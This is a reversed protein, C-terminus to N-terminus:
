EQNHKKLYKVFAIIDNKKTSYKLFDDREIKLSMFPSIDYDVSEKNENLTFGLYEDLLRANRNDKHVGGLIKKCGIKEFAFVLNTYVFNLGIGNELMEPIIYYGIEAREEHIKIDTLDMVGIPNYNEVVLWYCVDNRMELTKIFNYHTQLSIKDSNYFYRRIEYSNRWNWIQTIEDKNLQTFNKYLYGNVNYEKKKDIQM